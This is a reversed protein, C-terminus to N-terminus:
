PKYGAKRLERLEGCVLHRLHDLEQYHAQEGPKGAIARQETEIDVVAQHLATFKADADHADKLIDM